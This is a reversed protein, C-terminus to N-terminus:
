TVVQIDNRDEKSKGKINIQNGLKILIEYKRMDANM